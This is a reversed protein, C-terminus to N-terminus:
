KILGMVVWVFWCVCVCLPTSQGTTTGWCGRVVVVLLVAGEVRRVRARVAAAAMVEEEEEDTGDPPPPFAPAITANEDVSVTSHAASDARRAAHVYKHTRTRIYGEKESGIMIMGM